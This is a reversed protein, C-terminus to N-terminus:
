APRRAAAAKLLAALAPKHAKAASDLVVYRHRKGSGEMLGKPDPLMAGDVIGLKVGKQSPIITCILEKYSPGSGYGIVRDARDLMERTGPLNSRVADRLELAIDRVPDPYEGLFTIVEDSGKAM